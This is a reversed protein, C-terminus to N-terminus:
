VLELTREQEKTLTPKPTPPTQAEEYDSCSWVKEKSDTLVCVSLHTCTPCINFINTTM